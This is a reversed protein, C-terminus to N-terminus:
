RAGVRTLKPRSFKLSWSYPTEHVVEGTFGFADGNERVILLGKKPKDAIGGLLHDEDRGCKIVATEVNEEKVQDTQDVASISITARITRDDDGANRVTVEEAFRGNLVAGYFNRKQADAFSM